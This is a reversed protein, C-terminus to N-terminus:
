NSRLCSNVPTRMVEIAKQPAFWRGQGDDAKPANVIVGDLSCTAVVNARPRWILYDKNAPLEFLRQFRGGAPGTIELFPNEKTGGPSVNWNRRPLQAKVDVFLTQNLGGPDGLDLNLDFAEAV